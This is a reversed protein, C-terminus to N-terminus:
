AVVTLRQMTEHLAEILGDAVRLRKPDAWYASLQHMWEIPRPPDEGWEDGKGFFLYIDWAVKGEGGLGRAIAKGARREPDHFHRVRPDEIIRASEQATAQSDGEVMDIWVVSASFDAKPFGEIIAQQVARAGQV